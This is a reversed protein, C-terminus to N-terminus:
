YYQTHAFGVVGRFVAHTDFLADPAFGYGAEIEIFFMTARTLLTELGLMGTVTGVVDGADTTPVMLYDVSGSVGWALTLKSLFLHGVRVGAQGGFSLGLDDEAEDSGDAGVLVARGLFARPSLALAVDTTGSGFLHIRMPVNVDFGVGGTPFAMIPSGYLFRGLLGIDFNDSPSGYGGIAIGPYGINATVARHGEALTRGSLLSLLAPESDEDEDDEAAETSAAGERAEVDDAAETHQESDDARVSASPAIISVLLLLAALKPLM